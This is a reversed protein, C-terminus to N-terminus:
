APREMVPVYDGSGPDNRSDKGAGGKPQRLELTTIFGSRSYSHQVAEIRYTGDVGPRCGSVVCLGEPQANINGEMTVTGEGAKRDSEAADAGSRDKARAKDPEAFRAPKVTIAGDTGTDATESGWGAARRDYWRSLTQKEVPRGLIPAIDYSHLNDGWAATVTPLAGGGPSAGGNRKALIATDGVIKFTGGVEAAIREGFAVFSEDDLGIYPRVIAGLQADVKVESMGAAKGATTLADKISSNDFHRRQGQKPKDRTDMGKATLSLTRGGRGGRATLEDLTGVFVTGVGSHEWGLSITVRAGPAPLVVRGDTDDIEISASDSSQGSRDSVSLSILVPTLVATIDQGAVIVSYAARKM